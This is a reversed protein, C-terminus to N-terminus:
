DTNPRTVTFTGKVHENHHDHFLYEGSHGLTLTISQGKRLLTESVGNYSIHKEHQGFAILRTETDLNTIVLTDCRQAQISAPSVTNEDIRMEHTAQHKGECRRRSNEIQATSTRTLWIAAPITASMLM